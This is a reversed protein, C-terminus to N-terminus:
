ININLFRELRCAFVSLADNGSQKEFIARILDSGFCKFNEYDTQVEQNVTNLSGDSNLSKVNAM